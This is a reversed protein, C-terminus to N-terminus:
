IIDKGTHLDMEDDKVKRITLTIANNTEKKVMELEESTTLVLSKGSSPFGLIPFCSPILLSVAALGAFILSRTM